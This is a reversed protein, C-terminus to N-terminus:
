DRKVPTRMREKDNASATCLVDEAAYAMGFKEALGPSLKRLVVYSEDEILCIPPGHELRAFTIDREHWEGRLVESIEGKYWSWSYMQICISGEPANCVPEYGTHGHSVVEVKLILADPNDLGRIVAHDPKGFSAKGLNACSGLAAFAALLLLVKKM